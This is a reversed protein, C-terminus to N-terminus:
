DTITLTFPEPTGAGTPVLDVTQGAKLRGAVMADAILQEVTSQIFRRMPRAGFQQDTGREILRDLLPDTIKITIGHEKMRTALAELLLKAIPRLENAGLPNFLIVGDFRNILEPKFIGQKIITDIITREEDFLRRGDKVMDWILPAGANSTAIIILHRANVREGQADTFFGEDLIQLFLDRLALDSKEFEDLLLVAYPHERVLNSLIGPEKSAVGGILKALAEQGQYESMDLRVFAEEGGFFVAALAKATETKGVGTPGLFLFSGIPRKVNRIGARSRRMAGAIAVIAQDQGIM